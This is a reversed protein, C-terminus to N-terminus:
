RRTVAAAHLRQEPKLSGALVAFRSSVSSEKRSDGHLRTTPLQRAASMVVTSETSQLPRYQM